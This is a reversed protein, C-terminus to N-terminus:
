ISKTQSSAVTVGSSEDDDSTALCDLLQDRLDFLAGAFIDGDERYIYALDAVEAFASAETACSALAPVDDRLLKISSDFAWESAHATTASLAILGAFASLTIHALSQM